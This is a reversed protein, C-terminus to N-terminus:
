RIIVKILCCEHPSLTPDYPVYVTERQTSENSDKLFCISKKEMNYVNTKELKFGLNTCFNKYLQLILKGYFTPSYVIYRFKNIDLIIQKEDLQEDMLKELEAISNAILQEESTDVIALLKESFYKSFAM